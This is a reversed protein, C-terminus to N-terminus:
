NVDLEIGQFTGCGGKILRLVYIGAPGILWHCYSNQNEYEKLIIRKNSVSILASFNRQHARPSVRVRLSTVGVAESVAVNVM